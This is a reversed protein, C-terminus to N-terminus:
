LARGKWPIFAPVRRRYEGYADGYLALLRREECATGALLYLSGWVATALEFEGGVRGWLILFAGSYLPHRIYRLIGGSRLPEDAAEEIGRFHDRIQRTGALRGLDYQRLGVLFVLWGAVNVATLGHGAWAPLAFSAAAGFVVGGGLWVMGLHVGAFLNYAARYFPGLLPRLRRKAAAGALLSHGLGFSLWALAYLFHGTGGM